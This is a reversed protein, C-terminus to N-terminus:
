RLLGKSFESLSLEGKILLLGLFLFLVGLIRPSSVRIQQIGFAGFHDLLMSMVLQGVLAAALMNTAGIKPIIYLMGSVFVAGLFGGLYLYWDVNHFRKIDPVTPYVVILFLLCAIVGGIYSILTSHMPHSMYVGLKANLIGQLPLAFGVIIAALIYQYNM